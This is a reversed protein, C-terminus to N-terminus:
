VSSIAPLSVTVKTGAGVESEIKITGGLLGTLKQAISLGLGSGNGEARVEAGRFFRKFINQQEDASIGPGNDEIIILVESGGLNVTRLSATIKGQAPTYKIANDIINILAQRVLDTDSCLEVAEQIYIDLTISKREALKQMSQIIEILLEDVRFLQKRAELQSADLKALLLLSEVMRSLRDIEALCSDLSEIVEPQSITKRAYELEANIITLPTRIEHSADAVFQKQAVFASELREFMQNLTEALARVEDNAKPLDLRKDLNSASIRRALSSMNEIPRFALHTILYVAMASILIVLPISLMLLVKLNHLIAMVESLPAVILLVYPYNEDMEVPSWLCRYALKNIEIDSYQNNTLNSPISWNHKSDNLFQNDLVLAGTSDFIQMYISPSNELTVADLGRRRPFRGEKLQEEIESQMKVAFNELKSDLKAYESQRTARYVWFAFVMLIIAFVISSALIIKGKITFMSKM